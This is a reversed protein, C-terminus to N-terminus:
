KVQYYKKILESNAWVFLLPRAQSKLWPRWKLDKAVFFLVTENFHKILLYVGSLFKVRFASYTVKGNLKLYANFSDHGEKSAPWWFPSNSATNKKRMGFLHRPVGAEEGLRRAIPRDYNNGLVWPQMEEMLSIKQIQAAKRIGWWPLQILFLGTLLRFESIMEEYNGVPQKLGQKRKEWITDGYGGSFFISLPEPYDFLSLNRGGSGGSSAWIAVENKYNRGHHEYTRCKLGLYDAIPKGSDSGRWLSTSNVISVADNCGASKAVVATAVSDYGTSLGVQMRIPYKRQADRANEGLKGATAHLFDRYVSFRSFDPSHEPKDIEEIAQGDWVLNNFYVLQVDPGVTPISRKYRCLGKTGVTLLDSAYHPYDADLVLQAVSLLGPLTNGVYLGGRCEVYWIRDIGSASTVFTIKNDRVRLGSGFFLDTKDFGGDRFCGDWVGEVVRDSGTEVMPGHLIRIKEQGRALVAVWALKPWSAQMEFGLNFMYRGM